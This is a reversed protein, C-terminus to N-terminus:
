SSLQCPRNEKEKPIKGGQLCLQTSKQGVSYARARWATSTRDMFCSSRTSLTAFFPGALFDHRRNFVGFVMCVYKILKTFYMKSVFLNVCIYHWCYNNSGISDVFLLVLFLFSLMSTMVMNKLRTTAQVMNQARTLYRYGIMRTLM